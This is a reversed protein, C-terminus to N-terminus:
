LNELIFDTMKSYLHYSTNGGYIGHNKNPYFMMEFKKGAEVLKDVLETSNQMHVNDDAMGHVLLLNGQIKEVHNIPSNDDYGGPNEQPTRMFRETYITDYFRWNTVPAVAIAMKFIDAGKSLCLLSMYGGYSWGFIGIRTAEVYSLSSLYRAAEIQDETELKGLQLYTSKRFEEGRNDTGRNDVCVVLYGIQALMHFWNDRSSFLDTVSQSEPGGYVFMLVPYKKNKDFDSPKIMFGNLYDNYSTKFNFFEKKQFGYNKRIRVLESNNEINRILKGDSNHLSYSYPTNADSNNLIFYKGNRSFQADNWGNRKTLKKKITGNFNISYVDKRLTSEEHSSYYIIEKQEDILLIEGIDFNGTTIPASEKNIFNYKHLHKWGSKESTVIFEDSNQLYTIKNDDVESIYYNSEEEYIVSSIGTTSQAHLVELKNQRRNLRIISLMGSDRIWKIRPIYQDTEKGIDMKMTEGSELDFVHVSVISNSEGAKPYKYKYWQPYLDTFLTLNYEKVRSEDFKCFAIKRSDSSWAFAKSFGFEEEYVWDPAGNIIKNWEGDITAPSESRSKIDMIFINNDRVFAIRTGDPSFTALQQPGSDSLPILRKTILDFVFYNAKFSHRFVPEKATTILLKTEDSSFEYDDIFQFPPNKLDNVSFVTEIFDGKEYNFKNVYFFQDLITYNEGDQLSRIGEVM